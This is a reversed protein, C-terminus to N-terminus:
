TIASSKVDDDWATLVATRGLNENQFAPSIAEAPAPSTDQWWRPNSTRDKTAMSGGPPFM